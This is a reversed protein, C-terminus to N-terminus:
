FLAEAKTCTYYKDFSNKCYSDKYCTAYNYTLSGSIRDLKYNWYTAFVWDENKEDQFLLDSTGKQSVAFEKDQWSIINGQTKYDRSYYSNGFVLTKNKTDIVLSTSTSGKLSEEIENDYNYKDTRDLKCSLVIGDESVVLPSLLLLALLKKMNFSEHM